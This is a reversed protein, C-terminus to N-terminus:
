SLTAPNAATRFVDLRTYFQLWTFYIAVRTGFYEAIADIPQTLAHRSFLRRHTAWNSKLWQLETPHHLAMIDQLYVDEKHPRYCDPRNEGTKFRSLLPVKATNYVIKRETDVLKMDLRWKKDKKHWMGFAHAVKGYEDYSAWEIHNQIIHIM